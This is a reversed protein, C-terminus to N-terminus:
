KAYLLHRRRALGDELRAALCSWWTREDSNWARLSPSPGPWPCSFSPCSLEAGPAEESGLPASPAGTKRRKGHGGKRDGGAKRSGKEEQVQGRGLEQYIGRYTYSKALREYSGKGGWEWGGVGASMEGNWCRQGLGMGAHPVLHAARHVFTILINPTNGEWTLLTQNEM